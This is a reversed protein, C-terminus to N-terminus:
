VNVKNTVAGEDRVIVPEQKQVFADSTLAVYTATGTIFMLAIVTIVLYVLGIGKQSRM